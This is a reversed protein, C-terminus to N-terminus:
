QAQKRPLAELMSMRNGEPDNFSVYRGIGPIMMPEGLVGGGAESVRLIAEEINQVAIVVSPHQAPWGPNRPYFGGNIAGPEKPRNGETKTTEALVYGGMEAGLAQTNWGFASQYFRAM